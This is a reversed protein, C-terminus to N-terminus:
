LAINCRSKDMLRCERNREKIAVLMLIRMMQTLLGIKQEATLARNIPSTAFDLRAYQSDALSM